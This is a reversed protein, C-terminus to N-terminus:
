LINSPSHHYNSLQISFVIAYALGGAMIGKAVASAKKFDAPKEAKLLFIGLGTLPLGNIILLYYTSLPDKYPLHCLIFYGLIALTFIILGILVLRTFGIGAVVPLTQCHTATDGVMDEADKVIERILNLLFAFVAFFILVSILEGPIATTFLLEGFSLKISALTVWGTLLISLASLSAVVLNGTLVKPLNVAVTMLGQTLFIFALNTIRILKLFHM